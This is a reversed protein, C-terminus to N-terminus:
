GWENIDLYNDQEDILKSLTMDGSSSKSQFWRAILMFSLLIGVTGKLQESIQDINM